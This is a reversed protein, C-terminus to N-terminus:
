KATSLGLLSYLGCRGFLGTALPILGIFGWPTQPGAVVMLLLALGTAIRVIRDTSGVNIKM